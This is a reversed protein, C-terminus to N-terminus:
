IKQNTLLYKSKWPHSQNYYSILKKVQTDITRKDKRRKSELLKM